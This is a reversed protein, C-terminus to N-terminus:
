LENIQYDKKIKNFYINSFQKLQKNKENDILRKIELDQNLNKNELKIDEIKLILFSGPMIIPETIEGINLKDLNMKIKENLSNESVWGIRGSDKSSDSVSYTLATNGFGIKSISEKINKNKKEFEKKSEALFLIEMLLYSKIKSNTNKSIKNKLKEEDIKIKNSYKKLILQKWLIDLTIKKKIINIDVNYTELYRLFENYNQIGMKRFNQQIIRDTLENNTDINKVYNLIELEKITQSTLSNKSIERIKQDDFDKFNKNFAKLYNAEDIIDYSTIIKNNIKLEIKNEISNANEFIIVALLAIILILKKKKSGFLTM